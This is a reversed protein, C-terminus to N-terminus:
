PQLEEIRIRYFAATRHKKRDEGGLCYIFAGHKVLAVCAAYPIPAAKTFTDAKVDYIFARATFDDAEGGYGGATYIRHDDLAVANVGRAAMPYPAFKRWHNHSASFAYCAATNAVTKKAGDWNAGGFVFLEDGVVASAATGFAKDPYEPLATVVQTRWDFAFARTTLGALNAADDTGGAVIFQDGIIGGVSVVIDKPLAKASQTVVTRGRIMSYTQVPVTGDSGGLLCTAGDRTRGSVGYGQPGSLQGVVEWRRLPIDFRSVGRLWRKTDNEWRTGGAITIGGDDTAVAFGGNEEPLSPLKEWGAFAGSTLWVLLAASLITTRNKMPIMPESM